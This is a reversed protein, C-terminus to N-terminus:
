EPEERQAVEAWVKELVTLAEDLESEDIVLPACVVVHPTCDNVLIGADLAAAAVPSRPSPRPRDRDLARGARERRRLDRRAQAACSWGPDGCAGPARRDRDRRADRPGRREARDGESRRRTTEPSSRRRWTRHRSVPAWRSAGRAGQGSLRRGSSATTDPGLWYGTRGLGTQIEDLVLLAGRRDCLARAEALYGTAPRRSRGGRSRNWCSRRSTGDVAADLAGADGYPVHVIGELMPAFPEQKSPQGTAALAGFTRGHFGGAAAVVKSKGQTRGVQARAEVAVRDGRGRTACFPASGAASRAWDTALDIQPRTEYLNSVHILRASQEAIAGVVASSLARRVDRRHRRCISTPGAAHISCSRAAARSSQVPWRKYTDMLPSTVAAGPGSGRTPSSRSCCLTACAGDLVHVKGVGNELADLASAAEPADRRCARCSAGSSGAKM